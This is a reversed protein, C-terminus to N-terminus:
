EFLQITFDLLETGGAKGHGPIVLINEPYAAKVKQMTKSWDNTNADKLNGKGAGMAKVLCGGFLVHEEPYYGISNDVTHGEGYYAAYVKKNGVSLEIETDFGNQPIASKNSKALAITQNLAYSSINAAHFVELGGLCDSHFHTAVIAKITLKNKTLFDILEQSNENNTPTDFIVVEQNNVVLMGNCGVRGFSQTELYSIHQYVHESIKIIILDNSSYELSTKDIVGEKEQAKKEEEPNQKPTNCSILLPLVFLWVLIRNKTM